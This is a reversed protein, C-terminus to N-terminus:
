ESTNGIMKRTKCQETEYEEGVVHRLQVLGVPVKNRYVERMVVRTEIGGNTTLMVM